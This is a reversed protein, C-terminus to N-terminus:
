YLGNERVSEARILLHGISHSLKAFRKDSAQGNKWRAYIQQLIVAIRYFGFTVYYNISSVDRGSKAAYRQLVDRRSFFGPYATPSTIGDIQEGAETWFALAYGLEAFPDGVTCMEWDLVAVLSGVKETSFMLNNLKFDNHLVTPPPSPPLHDVLWRELKEASPQDDTKALHFRRIWSNVQRELFGEPHGIDALGATQYDIQHLQVLTDVFTESVLPLVGPNRYADPLEDDLVLGRKREMVYFPRDTVSPDECLLFPKPAYPFVPQMKQLIQYERRMDHGKPPLVGFPPRRLVAEWDGIRLLFTLNSYGISFTEVQLPSKVDLNEIHLRLFHEINTWNIQHEFPKPDLLNDM